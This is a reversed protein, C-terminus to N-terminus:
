LLNMEKIKALIMRCEMDPSRHNEVYKAFMALEDKTGLEFRDLAAPAEEKIWSTLGEIGSESNKKKLHAVYMREFENMMAPAHFIASGSVATANRMKFDFMWNIYNYCKMM